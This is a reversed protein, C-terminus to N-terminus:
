VGSPVVRRCPLPTTDEVSSQRGGSEMRTEERTQMRLADEREFFRKMREIQGPSFLARRKLVVSPAALYGSEVAYRIRWVSVGLTRAASRYTM